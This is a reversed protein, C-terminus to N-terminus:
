GRRNRGRILQEFALLVLAAGWFWRRDGEDTPRSDAPSGTSPRSWSALTAADISRPEQPTLDQSYARRLVSLLLAPARPDTPEVGLEVLLTGDREGGRVEPQQELVRRMWAATPATAAGSSPPAGGFRVVLSRPDAPDFTVGERLAARLLAAAVDQQAPGAVVQIRDIIDSRAPEYSARTITENATVRVRSVAVAGNVDAAAHMEASMAGAHRLPLFRMGVHAPLLALDAAALTGERLDGVIVVERSAPPQTGLWTVASRIADAVRPESFRASTFGEQAEEEAVAITEPSTDAVVVARAVRTDWAARVADSVFVPGAGAAVAAAVIALRIVLLPWDAFARRRLAALQSAPVFRLSPFLVRESRHQALLHILLPVALLVFGVMALPALWFVSM